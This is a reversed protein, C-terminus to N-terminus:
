ILGHLDLIHLTRLSNKISPESRFHDITRAFAAYKVLRPSPADLQLFFAELDKLSQPSLYETADLKTVINQEHHYRACIITARRFRDTNEERQRAIKQQDRRSDNDPKEEWSITTRLGGHEPPHEIIESAWTDGRYTGHWVRGLKDDTRLLYAGDRAVFRFGLDLNYHTPEIM